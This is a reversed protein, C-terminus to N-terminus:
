GYSESLTLELTLEKGDRSVTMTVKDGPKYKNKESNLEEFTKVRVNNFKIIIDGREVGAKYAPSAPTVSDVLVGEPM